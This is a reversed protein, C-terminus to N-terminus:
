CVAGEHSVYEAHTCIGLEYGRWIYQLVYGGNLYGFYPREHPVYTLMHVLILCMAEGNLIYQLVYGGYLTELYPVEM